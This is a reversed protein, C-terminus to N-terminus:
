EEEPIADEADEGDPEDEGEPLDDEHEDEPEPDSFEEEESRQLMLQQQMELELASSKEREFSIGQVHVDIVRVSLGSMTEIAKKVNDQINKAVEPVPFGYDVVITINVSVAEGDIELQVGRTLAKGSQKRPWFEALGSPTSGMSNVGEVENAALGAITAVVDPAFTISGNGSNLQINTSNNESM